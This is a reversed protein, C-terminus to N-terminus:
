LKGGVQGYAVVIFTEPLRSQAPRARFREEFILVTPACDEVIHALEPAALRWNLTVAIFGATEATGVAEFYEICNQALLAFRDGRKLGAATLANALKRVRMAFIAFTPRRGEFVVATKNPFLAANRAIVDGVISPAITM